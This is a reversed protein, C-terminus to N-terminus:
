RRRLERLGAVTVEVDPAAGGGDGLLWEVVEVAARLAGLVVLDDDYELRLRFVGRGDASFDWSTDARLSRPSGALAALEVTVHELLHATETDRLERTFPASADNDCTHRALGPLLALARDALDARASTRMRAADTVRVRAHIQRDVVEVAEVVLVAV